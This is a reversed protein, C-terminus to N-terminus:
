IDINEYDTVKFELQFCVKRDSIQMSHKIDMQLLISKIFYMGSTTRRFIEMTNNSNFDDVIKTVASIDKYKVSNTFNVFIVNDNSHFNIMYQGDNHRKINTVIDTILIELYEQNYIVSKKFLSADVSSSIDNSNLESTWINRVTILLDAVMHSGIENVVFPNKSKELTYKIRDLILILTQASKKREIDSLKLLEDKKVEDAVTDILDLLQFYNTIPSIKNRLFHMALRANEVFYYKGRIKKLINDRELMLHKEVVLIRAVREFVPKLLKFGITDALIQSSKNGLLLLFMFSDESTDVRIFLNNNYNVGDIIIDINHAYKYKNIDSVFKDGDKISINIALSSSNVLALSNADIYRFCYIDNLDFLRSLKNDKFLKILDRYLSYTKNLHIDKGYYDYITSYVSSFFRLLWNRLVEFSSIFVIFSMIIAYTIVNYNSSSIAFTIFAMVYVLISRTKGSHNPSNIIPLLVFITYMPNDINKGYIIINILLYDAILRLTPSSKYFSSPRYIAVYFCIYAIIAYICNNINSKDIYGVLTLSYVVLCIRYFIGTVVKLSFDINSLNNM